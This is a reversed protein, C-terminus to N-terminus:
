VYIHARLFCRTYRFCANHVRPTGSEQAEVTVTLQRCLPTRVAPVSAAITSEKVSL